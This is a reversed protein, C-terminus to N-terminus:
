QSNISSNKLTNKKEQLQTFPIEKPSAIEEIRNNYKTLIYHTDDFAQKM